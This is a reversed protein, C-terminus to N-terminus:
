DESDRGVGGAAYIGRNPRGHQFSAPYLAYRAGNKTFLEANGAQSRVWGSELLNTRFQQATVDTEINRVSGGKTIDKYKSANLGAIESGCNHVLVSTGAVDVFFDTNVDVTLDWMAAPGAKAEGGTVTAAAGDDTLLEDGPQLGQAETWANTTANWILHHQTTQILAPGTPTQVTLDLLDADYNAMVQQVEQASTEGTATDMSMVLDGPQIEAIPKTTGDAMLVATAAAFSNCTVGAKRFIGLARKGGGVSFAQM